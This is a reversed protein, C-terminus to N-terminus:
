EPAPTTAVAEQVSRLLAAEGQAGVFEFEENVVTKPVGSIRYRRALDPYGSVEVGDARVHDSEVAFEFALRV